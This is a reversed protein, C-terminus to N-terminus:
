YEDFPCDEICSIDRDGTLWDMLEATSLNHRNELIYMDEPSIFVHNVEDQKGLWMLTMISYNAMDVLTDRISEDDVLQENFMLSIIRKMKDNLRIVSSMMGFTDMSDTFSDGYDKNKRIYLAELEDTVEKFTLTENLKGTM